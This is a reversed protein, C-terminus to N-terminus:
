TKGFMEMISLYHSLQIPKNKHSKFTCNNSVASNTSKQLGATCNTVVDDSATIRKVFHTM